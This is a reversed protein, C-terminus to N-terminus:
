QHDNKSRPRRRTPAESKNQATGKDALLEHRVKQVIQWLEKQSGDVPQIEKCSQIMKLLTEPKQGEAIRRANAIFTLKIHDYLLQLSPDVSEGGDGAAEMRRKTM